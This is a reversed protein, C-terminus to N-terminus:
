SARAAPRRGWRDAEEEALLACFCEVLEPDLGGNLADNVLMKRGREPPIASRYPRESTLAHYVDAVALVRVLLPVADGCLGDPYGQGDLREHHWRILPLTDRLSPLPEVLFVGQVPHEKVREFEAATLPGPKGLIADPVNGKGIDHLLAGKGLLERQEEPLGLRRALRLAYDKVRESHGHTYPSRAEAARALAFIVAEDLDLGDILRKTRLLSRCRALLEVPRVPKTLFDDAGLEWAYLRAQLGPQETVLVIPVLRTAADQKVRRCVEYADIHRMELDLLVLDPPGAALRDLAAV